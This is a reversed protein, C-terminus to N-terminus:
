LHGDIVKRFTPHKVELIEAYEKLLLMRFNDARPLPFYYTNSNTMHRLVPTVNQCPSM